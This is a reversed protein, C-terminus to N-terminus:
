GIEVWTPPHDVAELFQVMGDGSLTTTMGYDRRHGTWVAHGRLGTDLAVRVAGSHDNIVGFPTVAGPIVGLYKMLREPSGFSFRKHGLREALARLDVPRDELAVVLWMEGKKARVFLNKTHAGPIEGRLRRSEEVTFLPPHMVTSHAIGLDDLCFTFAQGFADDRLDDSAAAGPLSGPGHHEQDTETEDRGWHAPSEELSVLGWGSTMFLPMIARGASRCPSM